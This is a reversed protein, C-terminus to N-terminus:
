DSRRERLEARVQMLLRGLHNEGAGDVTGWFRDGWRNGEELHADGTAILREALSTGPGFKQRLLGLMVELRLADWGPRLTVKKGVRRAIAPSSAAGVRAREAPDLSKAAQFAHEVSRYTVGDLAVDVRFFNSLWAHDGRFATIREPSM